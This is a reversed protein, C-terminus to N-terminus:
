VTQSKGGQITDFKPPNSNSRPPGAYSYGAREFRLLRELNRWEAFLADNFAYGTFRTASGSVAQLRDAEFQNIESIEDNSIGTMGPVRSLGYRIAINNAELCVGEEGNLPVILYSNEGSDWRLANLHWRLRHRYALDGGAIVEPRRGIAIASVVGVLDILIALLLIPYVKSGFDIKEGGRGLIKSFIASTAIRISYFLDPKEVVPVAAPLEITTRLMSTVSNMLAALERDPCARLQGEWYYQGNILNKQLENAWSQIGSLRGDSMLLRAQGYASTVDAQNPQNAVAIMISLADSQLSRATSAAEAADQSQQLRLRTLPGDGIVALGGCTGGQAQEIQSTRSSYASVATTADQIRGLHDTFDSLPKTVKAAADAALQNQLTETQTWFLIGASSLAISASTVTFGVFFIILGSFYSRLRVAGGVQRWILYGILSIFLSAAGAGFALAPAPAVTTHALSTFAGYGTSFTSIGFALAATLLWVNDQRMSFNRMRTM